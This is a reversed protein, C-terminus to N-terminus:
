QGRTPTVRQAGATGVYSDPGAIADFSSLVTKGADGFFGGNVSFQDAPTDNVSFTTEAAARFGAAEILGNRVEMMPGPAAASDLDATFDFDAGFSRNLFDFEFHSAGSFRDAGNRICNAQGRYTGSFDSDPLTDQVYDAATPALDTAIWLGDIRRTERGGTPSVCTLNWYGWNMYSKPEPNIGISSATLSLDSTLLSGKSAVFDIEPADPDTPSEGGNAPPVGGPVDPPYVGLLM